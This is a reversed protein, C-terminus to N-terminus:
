PLAAIVRNIAALEENSLAIDGSVANMRAQEPNRAGVLAHTVGPAALTWALVLQALSLGRARAVPETEALISNIRRILDPRFRPNESRMDDPPFRRDPSITGTLLGFALPSYALFAVGHSQDYPLLEPEAARDLMSYKEQDSDVPGLRRHREINEATTNSVGIARIKGEKKLDLLTQMTEAVPTTPDPWHTQYLDIRDTELRRLSQELEYRISDRGLYRHVRRGYAEFDLRGLATHWALGCKTAVVAQGRRGRLAKGVLEEALGLGYVPATDILNVGADLAAHIARISESEDTGGWLWGGIPWTGLGIVSARIGSQGLPAHRM